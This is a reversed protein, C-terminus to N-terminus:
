DSEAPWFQVLISAKALEDPSDPTETRWALRTHWRRGEPLRYVGAQGGATLSDIGLIGSPFEMMIVDNRHWLRPDFDAPGDWTEFRMPGGLVEVDDINEIYVNGRATSIWHDLKHPSPPKTEGDCSDDVLGVLRYDVDVYVEASETMAAM